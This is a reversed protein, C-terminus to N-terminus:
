PSVVGQSTLESNSYHTIAVASLADGELEKVIRGSRMVLVRTCVACVEEIDTSALVVAMGRKAAAQLQRHLEVKAGIDVGQTPEDLLFVAPSLRLWKAFLVKQQNGGSLFQLQGDIGGKSRIQLQEFWTKVVRSEEKRHLRFKSWFPRLHPLTLNEAASLTMIGGGIKRDAPLYGIGSRIAWDPRRPSFEKGDVEVHGVSGPVAGVLSGLVTERGSGTLGCVGVIDGPSVTFSVSRLLTGDLSDVLLAPTGTHRSSPAMTQPEDLLDAGTLHRVLTPRDISDTPNTAVVSGDRLVTVQDAIRFVEDLHHTVFLVAVGRSAVRRLTALLHDVEHEPLAATPEDLVLVRPPFLPDDQLARAVAIGTRQAPSLTSVLQDPDVDLEYSRLMETAVRRASGQRVTGFRTPYGLGVLLNDLVSCSPILGLDQHVFRLGLKQGQLPSGFELASEGVTVTGGPDPTHFGSLIKILTSKGSGNQGILVHIKGAQISLEISNLAPTGTFTKSIAHIRLATRHNGVTQDEPTLVQGRPGSGDDFKNGVLNVMDHALSM